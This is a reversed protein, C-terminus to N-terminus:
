DSNLITVPSAIVTLNAPASTISGVANTVVVFYNGNNAAQASYILYTANTQHNLRTTDRWWQYALPPTGGAVASLVIPTQPSVLMPAPQSSLVPAQPTFNSSLSYNIHAIGRAGNAGDVVIFYNAGATTQFQVSSSAGNTGGGNDCTVSILNTYSYLTGTYTFVGLVTPFSSGVTDVSLTGNTPARYAFWYQAGPTVGCLAPANTDVISNTTNFIQTGNYGLTLGSGSSGGGLGSRVADGIKYHALVKPLGESNVQVEVPTSFFSEDDNMEIRYSYFGLNTRQLSPIILTPSGDDDSNLPNGNLYWKLDMNAVRAIGLTIILPDGLRLSRDGPRQLVTPQLNTSSLFNLQLVVNGVAGNFGDVAIQYIQNSDAGFQVFSTFLGSYDDNATIEELHPFQSGHGGDDLHYVALLTDFSSGGTGLSVLGNDPARWSIWVSHGGIKGDHLPEGPEITANTNSGIVTTSTGSILQRGAFTDSFQQALAGQAGLCLCLALGRWRSKAAFSVTASYDAGNRRDLITCPM